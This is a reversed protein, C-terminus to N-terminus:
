FDIPPHPALVSRDLGRVARRGSLGLTLDFDAALNDIVARVGAEGALTLGFVYRRGLLVAAAGLALAKVIDAGTRIGSDFLVPVKGAVGEAVLPLRDLAATAGDVQRGGHNSVVIGDVGCDLARRADDPHLIGKVLLPLRTKERLAALKEFSLDTRAYIALFRRIANALQRPPIPRGSRGRSVRLLEVLAAAAGLRPRLLPGIEEEAVSLTEFVPDSLYNAIGRGRLFPLSGRDLDRSRWGLETTDLTVVIADYDTREARAIFSDVLEDRSSWYLQFWRPGSGSAKAVEEMPYSGQNSTVFPIGTASAASAAALDAERHALELVGVPGLLFPLPLCRGLLQVSLDRCSVDRLMRQVIPYRDFAARNAAMTREAGAGGLIYAGAKARLKRRAAQELRASGVPVAATRGVLGASYIETQRRRGLSPM